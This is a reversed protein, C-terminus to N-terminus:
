IKGFVNRRKKLVCHRNKHFINISGNIDRNIEYKCMLCQKIRNKYLKSQHGCKSCTMSTYEETVINVSCGYENAKNILHQKFKYHSMTNLTYKVKSNLRNRKNLKKLNELKEYLISKNDKTEKIEKIVCKIEKKNTKIMSHTKFEPLLINKYNRCLYLALKNHFEKTINKIKKFLKKIRKKIKNKNRIKYKTLIHQLKSIKNRKEIYIKYMDKGFYGYSDSAFYSCFINEGPDLSIFEKQTEKIYNENKEHKTILNLTFTNTPLDYILRSDLINNNKIYKSLNNNAGLLGVFIGKNNIAKKPILISKIQRNPKRKSITYNKIMKQHLKTECSKINSCFVRVEDTLIDYPCGKKNTKYLSDFVYLKYKKYNNLTRQFWERRNLNFDNVCYNYVKDCSKLWKFIKSRQQSTFHLLIKDSKIYTSHKKQKDVFKDFNSFENQLTYKESNFCEKIISKSDSISPFKISKIFNLDFWSNDLQLIDPPKKM